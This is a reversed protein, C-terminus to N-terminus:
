PSMYQVNYYQNSLGTSCFPTPHTPPPPTILIARIMEVHITIIIAKIMEVHLTDLNLHAFIIIENTYTEKRKL